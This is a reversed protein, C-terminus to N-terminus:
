GGGLYAAGPTPRSVSLNRPGQEGFMVPYLRTDSQFILDPGDDQRVAARGSLKQEFTSGDPGARWKEGRWAGVTQSFENMTANALVQPRWPGVDHTLGLGQTKAETMSPDDDPATV